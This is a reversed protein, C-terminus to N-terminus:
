AVRVRSLAGLRLEVGRAGCDVDRLLRDLHEAAVAIGALEGDLAVVTIRLDGLDVFARALDLADHDSAVNKGLVLPTNGRRYESRSPSPVPRAPVGSASRYRRRRRPLSM